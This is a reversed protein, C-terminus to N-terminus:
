NELGFDAPGVWRTNVDLPQSKPLKACAALMHHKTLMELHFQWDNGLLDTHKAPGDLKIDDLDSIDFCVETLPVTIGLGGGKLYAEKLTWLRFFYTKQEHAPLRQLAQWEADAFYHQAIEMFSLSKNVAETDVGVENYDSIACVILDQTHSLNFQLSQNSNVIYPKGGEHKAFQWAKPELTSYDSLVSRIFFRTVRQLHRNNDRKILEIRAQEPTSLVVRCQQKFIPSEAWDSPRTCWLDVRGLPPTVSPERSDPM